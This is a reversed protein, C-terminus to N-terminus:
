FLYWSRNTFYERHKYIFGSLLLIAVMVSINSMMIGQPDVKDGVLKELEASTIWFLNTLTNVLEFANYGLLLYWTLTQRKMLGLFLYLCILSDVFVLAEAARGQYITGFFPFPHGFTSMTLLFFFLYLGGLLVMGLPRRHEQEDNDIETM